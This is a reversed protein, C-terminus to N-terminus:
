VGARGEEIQRLLYNQINLWERPTLEIKPIKKGDLYFAGNDGLEFRDSCIVEPTLYEFSREPEEKKPRPM